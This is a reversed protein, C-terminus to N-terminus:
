QGALKKLFAVFDPSNRVSYDSVDSTKNVHIKIAESPLEEFLDEDTVDDGAALIFDYRDLDFFSVIATGKTYYSPKVEVIKRGKMITLNNKNCVSALKMILGSAETEAQVSDSKRFHWVISNQKIEIDSGPTKDVSERVISAIEEKWTTDTEISRWVDDIRHSAGHEAFLFVNIDGFISELFSSNRGSIIVLDLNSIISMQRLLDKLDDDPLAKEPECRFPVLTGDYDLIILKNGANRFSLIISAASDADLYKSSQEM